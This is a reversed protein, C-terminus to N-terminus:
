QHNIADNTMRAQLKAIRIYEDIRNIKAKLLAIEKSQPLARIEVNVSAISRNQGEPTTKSALEQRKVAVEYEIEALKQEDDGALVNFKAAADLWVDPSVPIKKEIYGKMTELIFDTTIPEM